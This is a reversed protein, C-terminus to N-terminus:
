EVEIIYVFKKASEIQEPLSKNILTNVTPLKPVNPLAEILNMLYSVKVAYSANEADSHKANIIGILHGQNDFLPGGSNGPQVPASIQYTSVDGQFGTKSSIIGNSLKIEDGMTARLPYGLVFINEGTKGATTKITYPISKIGAFNEDEIKVIALDNNKDSLLVKANYSLSFNGNVGKINIKNADKIVHYNTVLIGEQSIAFCTGSSKSKATSKTLKSIDDENPRIKIGSIEVSRKLNCIPTSEASGKLFGNSITVFGLLQCNLVDMKYEMRFKYVDKVATKEFYFPSIIHEELKDHLLFLYNFYINNKKIILFEFKFESSQKTDLMTYNTLNLEWIGELGDIIKQNEFLFHIYQEKAEKIDNFKKLVDFDQSFITYPFLFVIFTLSLNRKM